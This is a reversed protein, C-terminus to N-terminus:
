RHCYAAWVLSVLTGGSILLPIAVYFAIGITWYRFGRIVAVIACGLAVAIALLALMALIDEPDATGHRTHHIARAGSVLLAAVVMACWSLNAARRTRSRAKCEVSLTTPDLKSSEYKNPHNMNDDDHFTDCKTIGPSRHLV